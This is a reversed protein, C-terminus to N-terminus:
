LGIHIFPVWAAFKEEGITDRLSKVAVHLAKAAKTSDPKGGELLHGYVKDAVLPADRDNISWMTAIVTQYGAILMGAALHVAEDPLDEDGAATQCASLFAFGAHELPEETMTTLDLAGGYLQFCSKTPDDMNQEAHCALHVWSHARMAELVAQPTADKEDLRTIALGKAHQYIVDLEEVTAPLANTTDLSAQGVALIGHFNSSPKPPALLTSLTPTYSSVIYNFAKFKSDVEDYRGAAHLPLFALPGATCWTVRPLDDNGPNSQHSGYTLQTEYGLHKLIPDVVDVWLFTLVEKFSDEMSDSHYFVPSRKQPVRDGTRYLLSALQQSAVIVKDLSLSLLPVVAVNSSSPKLVLADCRNAHINIAVVPGSHSGKMLHAAKRARYPNQEGLVTHAEKMLNEWDRALRRHKQASHEELPMGMVVAIGTPKSKIARDLTQGAAEIRNALKPNINRLQDVPARLQITQKWVVSRGQEFWELALEHDGLEIAAVIAEAVSDELTFADHYRHQISTGLWIVFPILEIIRRHADLISPINHLACLKAWERAATFRFYPHGIQSLAVSRFSDISMSLDDQGKLVGFRLKYASGLNTLQLLQNIHDGPTLERARVGTKIARNLDDLQGHLQFRRIYTGCINTLPIALEQVDGFQLTISQSLCAIATELDTEDLGAEFRQFYAIALNDLFTPKNAHDDPTLSLLRVQLGIAEDIDQHEGLGKYRCVYSSALEALCSLLYPHNEPTMQIANKRYTISKDMDSHDGLREFRSEYAAGLGISLIRPKHESYEPALAFAQLYYSVAIDIDEIEQSYDSRSHFALGLRHLLISRAPHDDPLLSLADNYCSISAEIDEWSGLFSFRERYAAGLESLCVAKEASIEEAEEAAQTCCNVANDIDAQNNLRVFRLRYSIGVNRFFRAAEQSYKQALFVASQHNYIANQIDSLNGFREYRLDYAAGLGAYFDALDGKLQGAGSIARCHSDIAQDIDELCGLRKAQDLSVVNERNFKDTLPLASHFLWAITGDYNQPTIKLSNGSVQGFMKVLDSNSYEGIQSSRPMCVSIYSRYIWVELDDIDSVLSLLRGMTLLAESRETQKRLLVILEEIESDLRAQDDVTM